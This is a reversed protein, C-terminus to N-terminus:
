RLEGPGFTIRTGLFGGRQTLWYRGTRRELHLSYRAADKIGAPPDIRVVLVGRRPIPGQWRPLEPWEGERIRLRDILDQAEASLWWGRTNGTVPHRILRNRWTLAYLSAAALIALILNTAATMDISDARPQSAILKSIDYLGHVALLDDRDELLSSPDDQTLFATVALQSLIAQPRRYRHRHM